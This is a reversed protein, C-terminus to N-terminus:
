DTDPKRSTRDKRDPAYLKSLRRRGIARGVANSVMALVLGLGASLVIYHAKWIFVFAAPYRGTRVLDIATQFNAIYEGETPQPLRGYSYPTKDIWFWLLWGLIFAILFGKLM